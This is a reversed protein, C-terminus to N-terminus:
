EEGQSNVKHINDLSDEQYHASLLIVKGGSIQHILRGAEEGPPSTLAKELSSKENFIFSYMRQFDNKGFICRDIRSISEVQLGGLSEILELFKPWGEDFTKIDVNLPLLILLQYM